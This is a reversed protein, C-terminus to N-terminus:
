FKKWEAFCRLLSKIQIWRFLAAMAALAIIIWKERITFVSFVERAPAESKSVPQHHTYEPPDPPTHKDDSNTAATIGPEDHDDRDGYPPQESDVREAMFSQRSLWCDTTWNKHHAVQLRRGLAAYPQTICIREAQNRRCGPLFIDHRWSTWVRLTTALQRLKRHKPCHFNFLRSIWCKLSRKKESIWSQVLKESSQLAQPPCSPTDYFNKKTSSFYNYRLTTRVANVGILPDKKLVSLCRSSPVYHWLRVVYYAQISNVLDLSCYVM